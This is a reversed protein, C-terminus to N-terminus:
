CLRRPWPKRVRPRSLLGPLEGTVFTLNVRLYGLSALKGIAASLTSGRIGLHAALKSPTIPATPSLHVLLSSDRASLRHATSAARIHRVHCALYIQPYACQVRTVHSAKM